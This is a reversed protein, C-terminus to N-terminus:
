GGIIVLDRRRSFFDEYERESLLDVLPDPLVVEEFVPWHFRLLSCKKSSSIEDRKKFYDIKDSREMRTFMTEVAGSGPHIFPARFSGRNGM